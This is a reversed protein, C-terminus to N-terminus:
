LTLVEEMVHERAVHRIANMRRVWEMQDKAKLEEDIHLSKAQNRVICEFLAEADRDISAMHEQLKGKLLLSTYQTPRHEKLRRLYARGFPGLVLVESKEPATMKENNEKM